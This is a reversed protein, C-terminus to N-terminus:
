VGRNVTYENHSGLFLGQIVADWAWTTGNKKTKFMAHKWALSLFKRAAQKKKWPIM